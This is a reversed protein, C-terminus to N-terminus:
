NLYHQLMVTKVREFMFLWLNTFKWPIITKTSMLTHLCRLFTLKMKQEVKKRGREKRDRRKAGVGERTQVSCTPQLPLLQSKWIYGTQIKAPTSMFAPTGYICDKINNLYTFTETPCSLLKTNWMIKFKTESITLFNFLIFMTYPIFM